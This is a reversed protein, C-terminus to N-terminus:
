KPVQRAKRPSHEVALLTVLIEDNYVGYRDRGCDDSIGAVANVRDLKAMVADQEARGVSIQVCNVRNCGICCMDAGESNRAATVPIERKVVLAIEEEGLAGAGEVLNIRDSSDCCDNPRNPKRDNGSVEVIAREIAKRRVALDNRDVGLGAHSGQLGALVLASPNPGHSDSTPSCNRSGDSELSPSTM